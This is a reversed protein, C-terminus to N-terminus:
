MRRLFDSNNLRGLRACFPESKRVNSGFKSASPVAFANYFIHCLYILNRCVGYVSSRLVYLMWISFVILSESLGPFPCDVCVLGLYLFVTCLWVWVWYCLYLCAYCRTLLFLYVTSISCCLISYVIDFLILAVTVYRFPLFLFPITSTQISYSIPRPTGLTRRTQYTYVTYTPHSSHKNVMASCFYLFILCATHVQHM